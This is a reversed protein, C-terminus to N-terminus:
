KKRDWGIEEIQNKWSTMKEVKLRLDIFCCLVM